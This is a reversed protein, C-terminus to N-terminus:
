QAQEVESLWVMEVGSRDSPAKETCSVISKKIGMSM